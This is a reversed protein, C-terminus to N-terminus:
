DLSPRTQKIRTAVINWGSIKKGDSFFIYKKIKVSVSVYTGDLTALGAPQGVKDIVETKESVRITCETKELNIHKCLDRKWYDAPLKTWTPSNDGFLRIHKEDAPKLYGTLIM